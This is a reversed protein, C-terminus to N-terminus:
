FFHLVFYLSTLSDQPELSLPFVEPQISVERPLYKVPFSVSFLCM